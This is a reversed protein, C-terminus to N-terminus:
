RRLRFQAIMRDIEAGEGAKAKGRLEELGNVDKVRVLEEGAKGVMGCKVFMESREQAPLGTCKPVFLAAVKQNGAGLVENFFPEWGIPSRRQKSVEEIEGFRRNAVLGRLRLWWWTKEPVKFDSQLKAARKGYGTKILRLITENLSLGSYHADLDQDLSAQVRILAQAETYSRIYLTSTPDKSDGLLKVALKLKDVKTQPATQHLAESFLLNAGDLRRDDQYYLDKLLERDQDRASSEVIATAVPRNTLFRFFSALPLKKKLQLLVFFVLDTDGSELAKDLAIEDEEMSLLLPVQKGARTEHNLLQTALHSRGEDYAARAIVEFSIGPKDNLKGVVTSCITDEDENSNRVKRIAWHVHIKNAPLRLYDSLRVALLYERRNILRQILKESTLCRYQDYSIPLGIKYDRIANFIRIMECMDVFDDSSYLDLVSKGFAAAKLLQKQWHVDFEHGAAQVCTGVADPLNSRILRINEDAKPSKKELQDVADLLVSAPSTSGLKFVDETCDPVKQLFECVDNTILRVGDIDPHLHVWGDFYYKLSAGNPGILHVEDEWALMVADNGCWQVDKPPTKAKTEYEGIKNQFDSTIVWVMGDQTYLTVYLGNPSVSIHKFPGNPLVRDEADSSDVVYITQGIAVLVEVSRSLTYAPPIVAWSHVEDEPPTALLKPRGGHYTVAVLHNNSLIAIFGSPWFRCAKVKHEEAGFGLSFQTFDGELDYYSRVTGDETVVLLREDESWGLGRISGKDWNIHRIIKGSCSYIDIGSKASQTGRYGHLKGEDRYLALAGDSFTCQERHVLIGIAGSYPAGTLLYNELELDQDFVADYLKVKRYFRDGLKEWNATPNSM